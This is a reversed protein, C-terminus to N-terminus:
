FQGHEQQQQQCLETALCDSDTWETPLQTWLVPVGMLQEVWSPNLKGATQSGLRPFVQGNKTQYGTQNQAEPTAWNKAEQSLEKGGTGPKRTSSPNNAKPTPWRAPNKGDKKLKERDPLGRIAPHNSLCKQGYNAKNSIKQAEATTPTPWSNVEMSAIRRLIRGGKDCKALKEWDTGQDKVESASPTPWQESYVARALQDTRNRHTGDPNKANYMWQGPSDKWDRATATPWSEMSSSERERTAQESKLRVSYEGRQETVMKKWTASSQPSDLRSTDKSTKSSCEEPSFLKYQEAYFRGSTDQTKQESDSAQQQFRNARTAVLSSTWWAAFRNQQSHRLTRGSLHRMWTERKWRQSWTRSQSPKSRWMLSQEAVQSFESSDSILAETDLASASILQKPLIWM